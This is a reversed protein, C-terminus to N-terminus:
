SFDRLALAGRKLDRAYHRDAEQGGRAMGPWRRGGGAVGPWGPRGLDGGAGHDIINFGCFNQTVYLRVSM